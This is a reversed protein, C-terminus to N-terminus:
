AYEREKSYLEVVASTGKGPISEFKLTGNHLEVIKRCLALGLGAGGQKRSRSKDVRYFAETIRSLEEAEMGRGNDVVQIRCGGEIAKGTIVIFGGENVAKSANDVLNYLLSKVLDPELYVNIKECKCILKIKKKKMVPTLSRRIYSLLSSLSVEKMEPEDKEMLLLDLLKFSLKELRKGESFIYNASSITDQESLGGQRLLDAYGIISTMPTKLEHAFAGMFSEQREMDEELTNINEQLKDAMDDFNRSLQGFEDKSRIESRVSLDGSSIQKVTNTLRKLRKTLAFAMVTSIIVGLLVVSVYIVFFLNQQTERADYAASLDYRARLILQENGAYIVSLVQLNEGSEDKSLVYTCKDDEPIPLEVSLLNLDGSEFVSQREGVLSITQWDAIGQREIKELADAMNEYDASENYSNILVLTNRITEYSSMSAGKEQNLVSQFSTSILLSGGVGFTVSVLLSILIILKLRFSM